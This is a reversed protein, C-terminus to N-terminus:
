TRLDAMYTPAESRVVAAQPAALSALVTATGAMLVSSVIAVPVAVRWAAWTFSRKPRETPAAAVQLAPATSTESEPGLDAAFDTDPSQLLTGTADYHELQKRIAANVKRAAKLRLRAQKLALVNLMRM